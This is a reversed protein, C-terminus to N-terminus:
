IRLNLAATATKAIKEVITPTWLDSTSKKMKASAQASQAKVVKRPALMDLKIFINAQM